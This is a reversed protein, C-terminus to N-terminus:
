WSSAPDREALFRRLANMALSAREAVPRGNFTPHPVELGVPLGDPLVDLLRRLPLAGDGPHLRGHRAEAALDSPRRWPADCLQVMAIYEPPIAAVDDVSGGSRALHLADILLGVNSAAVTRVMLLAADLTSLPRFAMFELAVGLGYGASIEALSSLTATARDLDDDEVVTQVFRFGITAATEAVAVM